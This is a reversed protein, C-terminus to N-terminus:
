TFWKRWSSNNTAGELKNLKEWLDRQERTLKAPIEVDVKVIQDGFGNGHFKPAGKGDLRFEKGSQTGPPIKFKVKGTVTPVEIDGGLVATPTSIPVKIYIDDNRREFFEHSKVDLVVTCTVLIAKERGLV